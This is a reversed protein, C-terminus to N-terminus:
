VTPAKEYFMALDDDDLELLLLVVNMRLPTLKTKNEPGDIYNSHYGDMMNSLVRYSGTLSTANHAIAACLGNHHYGCADSLDGKALIVELGKRLAALKEKIDNM